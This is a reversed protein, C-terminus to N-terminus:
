FQWSQSPWRSLLFAISLRLQRWCEKVKEASGEPQKVRTWNGLGHGDFTRSVKLRSDWNASYERALERSETFTINEANWEQASTTYNYLRGITLHGDIVIVKNHAIAQEFDIWVPM